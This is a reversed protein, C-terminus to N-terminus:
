RFNIKRGKIPYFYEGTEDAIIMRVLNNHFRGARCYGCSGHNKCSWDFRRSDYYPKRYEKKYYIAKELSM